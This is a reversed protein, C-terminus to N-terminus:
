LPTVYDLFYSLFLHRYSSFYIAMPPFTESLVKAEANLGRNMALSPFKEGGRKVRGEGSGGTRTKGAGCLHYPLSPGLNKGHVM